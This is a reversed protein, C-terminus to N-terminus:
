KKLYIYYRKLKKFFLFLYFSLVNLACKTKINIYGHVKLLLSYKHASKYDCKSYAQNLLVSLVYTDWGVNDFPLDEPFLNCLYQYCVKESRFRLETKEYSMPRTISETEIGFTATSVPLCYFDTYKSLIIWTNWDQLTFQYKIYDDLNIYKDILGKRYMMTANCCKFRGTFIAQQLSVDFTINSVVVEEIKGSERNHNRYDTHCVGYEPHAELFDVQLQLKNENHWYDDNDCNAIYKGRCNKVCTAWNAGLGINEDHFILLINKQFKEQYNQLVIRANDTSCDDGIVIEFDFDCKQNLVSEISEYVTNDRNYSPIVISVLPNEILSSSKIIM